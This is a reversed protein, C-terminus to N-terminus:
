LRFEGRLEKEIKEKEKLEKDGILEKQVKRYCTYSCYFHRGKPTDLRYITNCPVVFTKGCVPCISLRVGTTNHPDFLDYKSM